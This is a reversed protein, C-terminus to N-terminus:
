IFFFNLIQIASIQSETKSKPNGKKIEDLDSKSNIQAKLVEKPNINGDRFYKILVTPNQYDKFDKPSIGDTKYKYILNDPNVKNRLNKLEHLKEGVLKNFINKQEKCKLQKQTKEFAKGLPSYTFKAKEIIQRQSSPLIEESTLYEYKDNKESALASIKAAERSVDCHLKEDRIKDDTTM